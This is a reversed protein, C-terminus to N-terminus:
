FEEVCRRANAFQPLRTKARGSEFSGGLRINGIFEPFSINWRLTRNGRWTRQICLRANAFQPLRTEARGFEFSGGFSHERHIGPIFYEM